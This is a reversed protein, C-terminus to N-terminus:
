GNQIRAAANEVIGNGKEKAAEFESKVDDIFTNIKDKMAGSLDEGKSLIKKRTDSGKNPAFLVGLLGGIAAGLLLTGVMKVSSGSNEM